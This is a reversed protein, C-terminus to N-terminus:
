KKKIDHSLCINLGYNKINYLEHDYTRNQTLITRTTGGLLNFEYYPMLSINLGKAITYTIYGLARFSISADKGIIAKDKKESSVQHKYILKFKTYGLQSMLGISIRNLNKDKNKKTLGAGLGIYLTNLREKYYDKVESGVSDRSGSMRNVRNCFEIGGVWKNVNSYVGLILGGFTRDSKMKSITSTSNNYLWARTDLPAQHNRFNGIGWGGYLTTQSISLKAYFMLFFYLLVTKNQM